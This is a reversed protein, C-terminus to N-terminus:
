PSPSALAKSVALTPSTRWIRALEEKGDGVRYLKRTADILKRELEGSLPSGSLSLAVSLRVEDDGL